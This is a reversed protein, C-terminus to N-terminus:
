EHHKFNRILEKMSDIETKAFLDFRQSLQLITSKMEVNQAILTASLAEFRNSQMEIQKDHRHVKLLLWAAIGFVIMVLLSILANTTEM